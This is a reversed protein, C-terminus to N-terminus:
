EGYRHGLDQRTKVEHCGTKRGQQDVLVCLIQFNSDDTDSGGSELTVIHDLEFGYPYVTLEGCHACHPGASWLRLRREQLRRGTMRKASPTPAVALRSGVMALRPKLTKLNM